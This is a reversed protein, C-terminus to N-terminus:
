IPFVLCFQARADPVGFLNQGLLHSQLLWLKWDPSSSEEPLGPGQTSRLEGPVQAWVGVLGQAGWLGVWLLSTPCAFCAGSAVWWGCSLSFLFVFDPHFCWSREPPTLLFSVTILPLELSNGFAGLDVVRGGGRCPILFSEGMKTRRVSMLANHPSRKSLFVRKNPWTRILLPNYSM